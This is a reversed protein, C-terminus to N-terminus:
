VVGQNQRDAYNYIMNMTLYDKPVECCLTGSSGQCTVFEWGVTECWHELCDQPSYSFPYTAVHYNELRLCMKSNQMNCAYYLCEKRMSITVIRM